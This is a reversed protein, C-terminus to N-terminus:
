PRPLPQWASSIQGDAGVIFGPASSIGTPDVQQSIVTGSSPLLEPHDYVVVGVIDSAGITYPKPTGFLRQVDAGTEKPRAKQQAQVLAPTIPTIVGQPPDNADGPVYQGLTISTRTKPDAYDFGPATVVACGQLLAVALLPLAVRWRAAAWASRFM